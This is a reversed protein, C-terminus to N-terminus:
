DPEGSARAHIWGLIEAHVVECSWDNLLDHYYGDFLRLTKDSSGAHEHFFQSGSPLTVADASGHLVLLPMTIRGFSERLLSSARVMEAVTRAPQREGQILPDRNMRDIKGADRSFAENPLKLVPLRPAVSGLLRTIQLVMASAPVEFAFSECILGALRKSPDLSFVTAVVGGASHGLLYVPLDPDRLRITGVLRDVDAVYDRFHDVLFRAGNSRGRGRLDIAYTAIGQSALFRAFEEYYAGHSNFGPVIALACRAARQPRWSRLFLRPAGPSDIFEETIWLQLTSAMTQATITSTTGVCIAFVEHASTGGIPYTVRVAM